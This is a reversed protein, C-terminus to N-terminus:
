SCVGTATASLAGLGNTGMSVAVPFARTSSSPLQDYVLSGPSFIRCHDHFSPAPVCVVVPSVACNCTSRFASRGIQDTAPPVTVLGMVRRTVSLPLLMASSVMSTVNLTSAEVGAVIRKASSWSRM